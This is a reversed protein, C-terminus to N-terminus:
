FSLQFRLRMSDNEPAKMPDCLMAPEWFITESIWWEKISFHQTRRESFAALNRPFECVRSKSEYPCHLPECPLPLGLSIQHKGIWVYTAAV